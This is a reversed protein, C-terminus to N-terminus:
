RERARPARVHLRALAHLDLLAVGDADDGTGVLAGLTADDRDVALALAHDDLADVQDLLVGLHQLLAAAGAVGAADDGLLGRDVHGVHRQDVATVPHADAVLTSVHLLAARVARRVGGLAADTLVALRPLLDSILSV